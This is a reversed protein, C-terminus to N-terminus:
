ITYSLSIGPLVGKTIISPTNVSQYVRASLEISLLNGSFDIPYALGFEVGLEISKISKFQYTTDGQGYLRISRNLVYQRVLGHIGFADRGFEDVLQLVGAGVFFDDYFFQGYHYRIRQRSDGDTSYFIGHQHYDQPYANSVRENDYHEDQAKM